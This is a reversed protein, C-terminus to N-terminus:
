SVESTTALPLLVTFTTTGQEPRSEVWIRGELAEVLTKALPMGLGNDGLGAITRYTARYRRSFVHPIDETAIGGGSDTVELLIFQEAGETTIRLRLHIEGEEPSALAANRLLHYVVQYLMEKDLQVTPLTEPLDVRLLQRKERLLGANQAIAEDVVKGLEIQQPALTVDNADLALLRVIDDVAQELRQASARVRELFQRQLAGLIGASEALLLDTYGVLSALPQRLDQAMSLLVRLNQRHNENEERAQRLSATLHEMEKQTQELTASLAALDEAAAAPQPTATQSAEALAEEAAQQAETAQRRAEELETLLQAHLNQLQRNEAELQEILRQAEEYAAALTAMRERAKEAEAAQQRLAANEEELAALRQENEPPPSAQQTHLYLWKALQVGFRDLRKQEETTWAHQAYPSLLVLSGQLPAGDGPDLPVALLPGPRELNLARALARADASTSSAPLRLSRRRKMATTLIPTNQALLTTGELAHERILDYGCAVGIRERQPPTLVLCLDAKLLLAGARAIKPCTEPATPATGLLDLLAEAAAAEPPVTPSAKQVQITPRVAAPKPTNFRYPLTFILPYALLDAFRLFSDLDNNALPLLVHIIHGLTLVSLAILGASAGDPRRQLLILIGTIGLLINFTSWALDIPSNNFYRSAYQPWLVGSAVVGLVIVALTGQLFTDGGRHKEPFGWLWTFLALTFAAAARDAIPLAIHPAITEQWAMGGLAFLLLRAAFLATLGQLLRRTQPYPAQQWQAWAAQLAGGIAFLIVLHYALNGPLQTLLQTLDTLTTMADRSPRVFRM